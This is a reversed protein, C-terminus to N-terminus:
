ALGLEALRQARIALIRARLVEPHRLDSATTHVVEHGLGRIRQDRVTDKDRDRDSHHTPGAHEIVLGCDVVLADVRLDPALWVQWRIPLGLPELVEALNREGPTEPRGAELLGLEQLRATGPHDPLAEALRTLEPAGIRCRWRLRDAALLLADDDVLDVALELITRAPTTGQLAGYRAHDRDPAVDERTPFDVNVLRRGPSLLITFPAEDADYEECGLLALILPGTVRAPHRARLCAALADQVHSRGAATRLYTGHAVRRQHGRRILSDIQGKELGLDRLQRRSVVGTQDDLLELARPDFPM